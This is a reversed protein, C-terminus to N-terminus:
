GNSFPDLSHTYLLFLYGTSFRNRCSEPQLCNSKAMEKVDM